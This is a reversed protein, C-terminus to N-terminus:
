MQKALNNVQTIQVDRAMTRIMEREHSMMNPRFSKVMVKDIFKQDEKVVLHLKRVRGHNRLMNLLKVVQENNWSSGYRPQDITIYKLNMTTYVLSEFFQIDNNSLESNNKLTISILNPMSALTNTLITSLRESGHGRMCNEIHLHELTSCHKQILACMAYEAMHRNNSTCINVLKLSTLGYVLKTNITHVLNTFAEIEPPANTPESSNYNNDNLHINRLEIERVSKAVQQNDLLMIISNCDRIINNDCINNHVYQNGDYVIKHLNEYNEICWQTTSTSTAECCCNYNTNNIINGSYNILNLTSLISSGLLEGTNSHHFPQLLEVLRPIWTHPIQSKIDIELLKSPNSNNNNNNCTNMALNTINLIDSVHNFAMEDEYTATPCTTNTYNNNRAILKLRKLNKMRTIEFLNFISSIGTSDICNTNNFIVMNVNQFLSLLNSGSSSEKSHVIASQVDFEDVISEHHINKNTSFMRKDIKVWCKSWLYKSMSPDTILSNFTKSVLRMGLLETSSDIIGNFQFITYWIDQPTSELLKNMRKRSAVTNSSKSSFKSKCPTTPTELAPVYYDFQDELTYDAQPHDENNNDADNEIDSVDEDQFRYHDYNEQEVNDVESGYSNSEHYEECQELADSTSTNTEHEVEEGDSYYHDDVACISGSDNVLNRFYDDNSSGNTDDLSTKVPDNFTGPSIM